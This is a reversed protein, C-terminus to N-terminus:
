DSKPKQMEQRRMPMGDIITFIEAPQVIKNTRYKETQDKGVLIVIFDGSSVQYKKYLLSNEPVVILKLSREKLADKEKEFLQVEQDVSKKHQEKGFICLLREESESPPSATNGMILLGTLITQFLKMGIKMM